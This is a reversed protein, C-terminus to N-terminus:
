ENTYDKPQGSCVNQYTVVAPLSTVHSFFNNRFGYYALDIALALSQSSDASVYKVSDGVRISYLYSEFYFLLRMVYVLDEM